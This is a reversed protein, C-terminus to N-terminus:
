ESVLVFTGTFNVTAQFFEGDTSVFGGQGVRKGESLKLGDILEVWDSGDWFLISLDAPDVGEPMAFALTVFTPLKEVPEGNRTVETTFASQYTNGLLLGGPLDGQNALDGNLTASDSIPCPFLAADGNPLSLLTGSFAKCDLDVSDEGVEVELVPLTPQKEEETIVKCYEVLKGGNQQLDMANDFLNVCQLTLTGDLTAMLGTENEHITGIQITINKTAGGSYLYAGWYNSGSVTLNSVDINGQSYITLGQYSNGIFSNNGTLSIDAGSGNKQNYLQAGNGGYYYYYNNQDSGNYSAELNNVSIKGRSSAVLGYYSNNNFTNNGTLTIDGYTSM